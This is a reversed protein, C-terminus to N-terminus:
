RSARSSWARRIGSAGTETATEPFIQTLKGAADVDLLILYGPKKTTIRFGIKSGAIIEGSPILDLSLGAANDTKMGANLSALKATSM